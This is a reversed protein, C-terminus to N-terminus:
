DSSFFLLMFHINNISKGQIDFFGDQIISYM